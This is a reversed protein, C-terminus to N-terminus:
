FKTKIGGFFGRGPRLFGTPDQYTEGALNTIKGYVTLQETVDYNATIDVTVYGPADLYPVSFDRNGDAWSSLYLLSADLSLADTAQWRADFDLKNKPRRLLDQHAIDDTAHTYTYDLRLKVADIPSYSVFAEVGYTTAKGVNAYSTFTANSDILNTIDNHYYTAGFEVQDNLVSQEFGFDYGLSTEPKLNPNGFFDSSPFNQFMESLTPAKFGTGVSAKLKTGTEPILYTPAIRYTFKDGFRDNSDFRLSVTDYFNEVLNSQLEAYGSNITTEATIPLRIEDREHEAGIIFTEGEAIQVKGQWDLKQRDGSFYSTTPGDPSFDSLSTSTYAFGLTQEFRGDFLALHTTGRTFYELVPSHSQASDPFAPFTNYNDGTSDLHSNTYRAVLGLDFNDTVDLGLKTSATVNDYADDIRKEGPALLNLPTVPTDDSRFHEINATYHFPGTSGSVGATQNFTGFSGGEIGTTFQPAGNGTKTIINIVGGIADSGYLGSQPGRLVEVREIDPTLFQGFDFSANSNSVDSVDIGDVFVKVHNSNTGRMFVSTQGGPGGTQVINLGPVDKLVDPLTQEQKIAIDAATIVTISNAIQSIPTPVRTATVVIEEPKAQSADDQALAPIAATLLFFDVSVLATALFLSSRSM